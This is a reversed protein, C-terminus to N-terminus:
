AVTTDVRVPRAALRQLGDYAAYKYADSRTPINFTAHIFRDITGGSHLVAQGLHILEGAIDGLIHVGLLTKDDRRFVLKVLGETSGSINARTNDTFWGRGVEYDINREKASEETLGVMAVEPISYIGFPALPDVTEKFPIGLGHCVAVRGQETSVSALAPPGIVDGAAYVGDASTRFHRDVLIRGRADVEVGAAELALGETNGARGAAFLVKEPRIVEGNAMSVRLEGGTREITAVGSGLLMRAGMRRLALALLGSIEADMFPLLRDAADLLTVEVGLATFISAYESGVPGGGVVVMTKPIRDIRIIDESDHVDPDDFPIGPPRFPRSGTAILIVRAELVTEEGRDDKVVVTGDGGLAANGRLLTIGHREINRRVREEATSIVNATRSILHRLTAQPDLQLSLGYVERQQFGTVYLATERLTKTPIGATSVPSGGPAPSREVIAVRYGFYAAQTAGKEGAPGSGIVVLDFNETM